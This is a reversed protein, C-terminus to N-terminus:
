ASKDGFILLVLRALGLDVLGILTVMFVLFLLVVATYNVM